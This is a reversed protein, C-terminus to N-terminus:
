DFKYMKSQINYMNAYKNKNQILENHTGYELVKGKDMVVIKDALKAAGLRHTVIIATKGEAVKSFTNYVRTEENPDISATPEDLIITHHPKYLGRAIAIKQWEGGSLDVGDFERSLITEYSNPFQNSDVSLNVMELSKDIRKYKTDENIYLNSIAINNSLSLKYRQFNQFVASINLFLSTNRIKTTDIGGYEVIGESPYYLGVMVKVLTSKGAGNEGVIAITEGRLIELNINELVYDDSNPYKFNVNKLSIGHLSDDLEYEGQREPLELFQIFNKISGLNQSLRGIHSCIIEEMMKFMMDISAFLAFFAGVSIEDSLLTNVFLLLVGIYGLLTILKMGIETLGSKKEAYWRKNNHIKITSCYLDRFYDNAGLIRTEKFFEKDCICKEYYEYERKLPASEDSLKSFIKVRLFQTFAVPLFIILISIALIPKITYLYIGIFLFYPIYYTLLFFVINLFFTSNMVGEKAKDIDELNSIDEFLLNDLKSAKKHLVSGMNGMIRYSIDETMGNHLGILVQNMVLVFAISIISIFASMLTENADLINTLSNFLKITMLTTLGQSLGHLIGVVLSIILYVPCASYALPIIKKLIKCLTIEKKQIM